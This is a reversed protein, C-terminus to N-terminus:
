QLMIEKSADAIQDWDDMTLGYAFVLLGDVKTTAALVPVSPRSTHYGEQVTVITDPTAHADAMRAFANLARIKDPGTYIEEEDRMVRYTM